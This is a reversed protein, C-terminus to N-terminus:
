PGFSNAHNKVLLGSSSDIACTERVPRMPICGSPDYGQGSIDNNILKDNNGDLILVRLRRGYGDSVPISWHLCAYRFLKSEITDPEVLHLRPEGPGFTIGGSM